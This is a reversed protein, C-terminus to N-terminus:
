PSEEASAAATDRRSAGEVNLTTTHGTWQTTYGGFAAADARFPKSDVASLIREVAGFTAASRSLVLDFREQALPIFDLDFAVAAAEIAVGVDAAGSAIARAIDMHSLRVPGSPLAEGAGEVARLKRLLLKRAGAGEERWAIRTGPRRLDEVKLDLPNGKPVLLGQRWTILNMMFMDTGGFRARVVTVNDEDLEENMLHIGAIHVHGRELLELARGSSAQVWRLRVDSFREGTSHALTGLLPACGAVLVNQGLQDESLSAHLEVSSVEVDTHTVRSAGVGVNSLRGDSAGYNTGDLPHAVWRGGVRGVIVRGTSCGRLTDSTDDSPENGSSSSRQSQVVEAEIMASVNLAFLEEVRCRLTAALALAITVSPVHRGGEIGNIAQRSIGVRQALAYQSLGAQERRSKLRETVLKDRVGVM